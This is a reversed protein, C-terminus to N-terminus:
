NFFLLLRAASRPFAICLWHHGWKPQGRVPSSIHQASGFDCLQPVILGGELRLLINNAVFIPDITEFPSFCTLRSRSRRAGRWM